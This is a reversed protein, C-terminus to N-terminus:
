INFLQKNTLFLGGGWYISMVIKHRFGTKRTHMHTYVYIIYIYIYM